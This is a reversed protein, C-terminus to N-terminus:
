GAEGAQVADEDSSRKVTLVHTGNGFANTHALYRNGACVLVYDDQIVHSRSQGTKLDTVTVKIGPDPADDSV